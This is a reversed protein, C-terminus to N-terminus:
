NSFITLCWFVKLAKRLGFTCVYMTCLHSSVLNSPCTVQWAAAHRAHLYILYIISFGLCLTLFPPEEGRQIRLRNMHKHQLPFLFITFSSSHFILSFSHFNRNAATCCCCCLCFCCWRSSFLLLVSWLFYCFRWLWCCFFILPTKMNIIDNAWLHQPHQPLKHQKWHQQQKQQQVHATIRHWMNKQSKKVGAVSRPDCMRQACVSLCGYVHLVCVWLCM